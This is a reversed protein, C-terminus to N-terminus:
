RDYNGYIPYVPGINLTRCRNYLIQEHTKSSLVVADFKPLDNAEPNIVPIGNLYETSKGDDLICIVKLSRPWYSRLLSCTHGGAGYLAVDAVKSEKLRRLLGNVVANKRVSAHYWPLGKWEEAACIRSEFQGAFTQIAGDIAVHMEDESIQSRILKGLDSFQCAARGNRKIISFILSSGFHNYARATKILFEMDWFPKRLNVSSLSEDFVEKRAFLPQRLYSQFMFM